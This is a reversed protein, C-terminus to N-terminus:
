KRLRFVFGSCDNWRVDSEAYDRNLWLGGDISSLYFVNPYDDRDSIQKMGIFITRQTPNQLRFQPGTEPPCLELGLEKVKAFIENTTRNETKLDRVKLIPLACTQVGTM